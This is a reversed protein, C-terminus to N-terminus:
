NTDKGCFVSSFLCEALNIIVKKVRSSSHSEDGSCKRMMWVGSDQVVPGDRQMTSAFAWEVRSRVKGEVQVFHCSERVEGQM